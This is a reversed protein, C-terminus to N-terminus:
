VLHASVKSLVINAKETEGSYKKIKIGQKTFAAATNKCAMKVVIFDCDSIAEGMVYHAKAHEEDGDDHECLHGEAHDDDLDIDTRPNPRVAELEFSKFMGAGKINYVAFFPTHGANAFFTLSDDKVPIAVKM